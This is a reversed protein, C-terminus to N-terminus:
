VQLHYLNDIILLSRLPNEFNSKLEVKRKIITALEILKKFCVEPNMNNMIVLFELLCQILIQTLKLQM